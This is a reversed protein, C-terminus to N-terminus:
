AGRVQERLASNENALAAAAGSVAEREREGLRSFATTLSDLRSGLEALAPASTDAAGLIPSPLPACDGAGAGAGAGGGVPAVNEADDVRAPAKRKVM